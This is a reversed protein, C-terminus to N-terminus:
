NIPIKFKSSELIAQSGLHNNTILILEGELFENAKSINLRGVANNIGDPNPFSTEFFNDTNRFNGKDKILSGFNENEGDGPFFYIGKGTFNKIDVFISKTSNNDEITIELKKTNGNPFIRASVKNSHIIYESDGKFILKGSFEGKSIIGESQTKEYSFVLVVMSLVIYLLNIPDKFFKLKHFM